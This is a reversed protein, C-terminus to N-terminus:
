NITLLGKDTSLKRRAEVGKKSAEKKIRKYEEDGVREKFKKQILKGWDSALKQEKSKKMNTELIKKVWKPDIEKEPQNSFKFGEISKYIKFIIPDKRRLKWRKM